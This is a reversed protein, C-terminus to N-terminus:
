ADNQRFLYAGKRLYAAGLATKTKESLTWAYAIGADFDLGRGYRKFLFGLVTQSLLKNVRAEDAALANKGTPLNVGVQVLWRYDNLRITGRIKTDILGNLTSTAGQEVGAFASAGYFDLECNETVPISLRLSTFVASVRNAGTGDKIRWTQAYVVPGLSLKEAPYQFRPQASIGSYYGSLFSLALILCTRKHM